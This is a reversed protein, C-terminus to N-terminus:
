YLSKHFHVGLIEFKIEFQQDHFMSKSALQFFSTHPLIKGMQELDGRVCTNYHM